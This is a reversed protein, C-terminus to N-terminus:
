TPRIFEQSVTDGFHDTATVTLTASGENRANLDLTKGNQSTSVVAPHSSELPNPISACTM